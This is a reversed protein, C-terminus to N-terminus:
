LWFFGVMEDLKEASKQNEMTQHLIDDAKSAINTVRIEIDMTGQAGEGAATTIEEIAQRM